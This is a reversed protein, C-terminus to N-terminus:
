VAPPEMNMSAWDEKAPGFSGPVRLGAQRMLITMQGRHHIEHHVLALLSFGRKWKGGYVDDEVDLSADTWTAKVQEALSTSARRYAEAVDKASAPVPADEAPGDPDLGTQGLLEPITQAVHWAVRGLTRHGDAVPQDLSADTLADMMQQTVSSIQQWEALFEELNRYV